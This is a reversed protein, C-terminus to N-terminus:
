NSIFPTKRIYKRDNVQNILFSAIDANTIKTGPTDTLNEKIIGTESDEVVFPLRVLTWEIDSNLLTHHEMKKDKMMKPFLLEFMKAGLRNLWSKNDGKITLSAGTVGIYRNMEYEKMISLINNTLRSYAPLEKVPQGFANIVINCNKLLSSISNIDQADGKLIEIRNDYNTLKEPNRVLMRVQYDSDLAKMALHRGVKGTGGIIAIRNFKEM